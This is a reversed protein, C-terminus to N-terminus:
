RTYVRFRTVTEYGMKRYLSMGQTSSQLVTREVSYTERARELAHRVIAEGYGNRWKEPLTAVCYLGMADPTVLTAAATVPRGDAYGVWGAFPGRWLAELDYLERCWELPMRFAAANVISFDLREAESSVPRFDLRQLRRIPPLLREASLGPNEYALECGHAEFIARSRKRLAADLKHDAAWFAWRLGRAMYHVAATMIRRELLSASDGIPDSFFAGNFTHVSAGCSAISVGQMERVEGSARARAFHRFFEVLNQEVYGAQDM